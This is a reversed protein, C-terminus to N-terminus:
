TVKYGWKAAEKAMGAKLRKVIATMADNFRMNFAGALYHRGRVGPHHVPKSVPHAAGSWFLAKKHKFIGRRPIVHPAAGFEIFRWYFADDIAQKGKVDVGVRAEVIGPKGRLRKAVINKRLWGRRVPAMVRAQDRFVVAGAYMAARAVNQEFKPPMQKCFDNFEKLGFVKVRFDM